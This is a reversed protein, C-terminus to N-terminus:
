PERTPQSQKTHLCSHCTSVVGRTSLLARRASESWGKRLLLCYDVFVRLYLPSESAASVVFLSWIRWSHSFEGAAVGHGTSTFLLRRRGRQRSICIIRQGCEQTQGESKGDHWVCVGSLCRPCQTDSEEVTKLNSQSSWQLPAKACMRVRTWQRAEDRRTLKTSLEM